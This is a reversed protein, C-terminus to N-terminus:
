RCCDSTSSFLQLMNDFSVKTSVTMLFPHGLAVFIQGTFTIWFKTTAELKHEYAPFTSLGRILAGVLLLSSGFRM